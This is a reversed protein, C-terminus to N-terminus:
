LKRLHATSRDEPRGFPLGEVLDHPTSSGRLSRRSQRLHLSQHGLEAAVHVSFALVRGTGLRDPKPKLPCVVNGEAPLGEARLCWPVGYKHLVVLGSAQTATLGPRWARFPRWM